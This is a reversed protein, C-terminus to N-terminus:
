EYDQSLSRNVPTQVGQDFTRVRRNKKDGRGPTRSSRPPSVSDCKGCRHIHTVLRSLGKAKQEMEECSPSWSLPCVALIVVVVLDLKTNVRICHCLSSLSHLIISNLTTMSCAPYARTSGMAHPMTQSCTSSAWKLEEELAARFRCSFCPSRPQM